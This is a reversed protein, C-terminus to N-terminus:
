NWGVVAVPMNEVDEAHGLGSDRNGAAAKKNEERAMMEEQGIVGEGEVVVMTVQPHQRLGSPIRPVGPIGQNPDPVVSLPEHPQQQMSTVSPSTRLRQPYHYHYYHPPRNNHEQQQPKFQQEPQEPEPPDVMMVDPDVDTEAAAPATPQHHHQKRGLGGLLIRRRRTEKDKDKAKTLKGSKAPTESDTVAAAPSITDSPPAANSSSSFLAPRSSSTSLRPAAATHTHNSSWMLENSMRSASHRLKKVLKRTATEADAAMDLSAGRKTGRQPSSLPPYRSQRGRQSSIRPPLPLPPPCTQISATPREPSSLASALAAQQPQQLQQQHAAMHDAFSKNAPAPAPTGQVAPGTRPPHRGGRIAHTEFFGSAVLNKYSEMVEERSPYKEEDIGAAPATGQRQVEGKVAKGNGNGHGNGSGNGNEVGVSGSTGMMMMKGISGSSKAARLNLKERVGDWLPALFFGGGGGGKKTNLNRVSWGASSRPRRLTNNHNNSSSSPPYYRREWNEAEESANASTMEPGLFGPPPAASVRDNMSGEVFRSRPAMGSSSTYTRLPPAPRPPQHHNHADDDQHHPHVPQHHQHRPMAQNQSRSPPPM